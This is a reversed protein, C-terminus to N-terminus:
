NKFSCIWSFIEKEKADRGEIGSHNEMFGNWVQIRYDCNLVVLGVDVTQFMDMLWHVESVEVQAQSM